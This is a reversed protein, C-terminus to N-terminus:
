ITENQVTLTNVGFELSMTSADSPSFEQSDSNVTANTGIVTKRYPDGNGTYSTGVITVVKINNNELMEELRIADGVDTPLVLGEFSITGGTNNANTTVDGDFTNTTSTDRNKEYSVKTGYKLLVGDINVQVDFLEASM